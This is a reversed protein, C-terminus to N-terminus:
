RLHQIVWVIAPAVVGLAALVAFGFKVTGLLTTLQTHLTVLQASLHRLEARTSSLEALAIQAEQRAAGAAAAIAEVKLALAFLRQEAGDFEYEIDPQSGNRAM